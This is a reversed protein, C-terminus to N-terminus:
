GEYWNSESFTDRVLEQFSADVGVPSNKLESLFYRIEECAERNAGSLKKRSSKSVSDKLEAAICWLAMSVFTEGLPLLTVGDCAVTNAVSGLALSTYAVGYLSLTTSSCVRATGIVTHKPMFAAQMPNLEMVRGEEDLKEALVNIIWTPLMSTATHSVVVKENMDVADIDDGDDDGNNEDEGDDSDNGKAAKKAPSPTAKKKIEGGKKLKNWQLSGPVISNTPATTAATSSDRAGAVGKRSFSNDAGDGVKRDDFRYLM